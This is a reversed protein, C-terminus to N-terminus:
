VVPEVAHLSNVTPIAFLFTSGFGERSTVTIRGGHADVIHKCIALGLGLGGHKRTNTGEVQSFPRFLTDLMDDPIGIGTDEVEVKVFRNYYIRSKIRVHGGEPTFKIANHILNSLVQAMRERDAVVLPLNEANDFSLSINKSQAFIKMVHYVDVIVEGMDIEQPIMEFKGARIRGVELLDNVLRIMHDACDELRLVYKKQQENLTGELEDELISAFGMIAHVPTRLEHSLISLWQDKIRDAEQLARIQVQHEQQRELETRTAKHYNSLQFLSYISLALTSIGLLWDTIPTLVHLQPFMPTLAHLGM